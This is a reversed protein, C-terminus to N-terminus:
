SCASGGSDSAGRYGRPNQTQWRWADALMEPLDRRTRWGLFEKAFAPDAWAEVVDGPRREVLERPVKEGTVEEFAEVVELVTSGRGTGLNCTFFGPNEALKDLALLHAESLDVVHLYDRVATGDRTPYDSGFVRLKEMRGSAVHCVVPVLNEPAGLPDEGIRGSPHAGVPNFYRLIAVNRLDGAFCLDRAIEEMFYKTRGYPSSVGGVPSQETLPVEEPEGYVTCSSSFVFNRVKAEKMAEFLAISGAVNNRYYGLPNETSEGVAKFAAFHLVAEVGPEEAFVSRLFAADGSDGERLMAERGALEGVRDLAEPSSNSFDDVVVVERGAELLALVAHSGVYGAGGTVLVKKLVDPM